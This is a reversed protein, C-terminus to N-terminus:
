KLFHKLAELIVGTTVPLSLKDAWNKVKLLLHEKPEKEIINTLEEIQAEKVNKKLLFDELEKLNNIILSSQNQTDNSNIFNDNGHIINVISNTIEYKKSIISEEETIQINGNLQNKFSLLIDIIKSRINVLTKKINMNQLIVYAYEIYLSKNLGKSLEEYYSIPIERKLSSNTNEISLIPLFIDCNILSNRLKESLYEIGLPRESYRIWGDTFTGYISGIHKRYDPLLNYEKPYGNLEYNIWDNIEYNNLSFVLVKLQLLIDSLSTKTDMALKLLDNINM